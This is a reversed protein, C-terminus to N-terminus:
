DPKPKLQQFNDDALGVLVYSRDGKFKFIGYKAASYVNAHGEQFMFSRPVIETTQYKLNFHFLKENNALHENHYIRDFIGVRQSDLKVVLYEADEYSKILSETEYRLAMYDGQMLSRPDVPALKLYVIEGNDIIKEKEYISYNLASFVLISSILFIVKKM